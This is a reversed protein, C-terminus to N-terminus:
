CLLVRTPCNYLSASAHLRVDPARGDSVQVWMCSSARYTLHLQRPPIGPPKGGQSTTEARRSVGLGIRIRYTCYKCKCTRKCLWAMVGRELTHSCCAIYLGGPANLVCPHGSFYCFCMWTSVVPVHGPCRFPDPFPSPPPPHPLQRCAVCYGFIAQGRRPDIFSFDAWNEWFRLQTFIVSQPVCEINSISRPLEHNRVRVRSIFWRVIM